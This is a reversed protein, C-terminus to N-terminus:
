VKNIINTVNQDLRDLQRGRGKKKEKKKGYNSKKEKDVM